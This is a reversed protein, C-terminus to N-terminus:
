KEPPRRHTLDNVPHTRARWEFFQKWAPAHLRRYIRWAILLFPLNFLLGPGPIACALAAARLWGRSALFYALGVSLAVYFCHVCAYWSYYVGARLPAGYLASIALPPRLSFYFCLCGWLAGLGSFLLLLRNIRAYEGELLAPHEAVVAM